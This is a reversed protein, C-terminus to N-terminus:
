FEWVWELLRLCFWGVMVASIYHQSVAECSTLSYIFLIFLNNAASLAVVDALETECSSIAEGRM